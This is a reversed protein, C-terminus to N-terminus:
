RHPLHGPTRTIGGFKYYPTSTADAIPSTGETAEEAWGLYQIDHRQSTM